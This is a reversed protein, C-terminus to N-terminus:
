KKERKAVKRAERRRVAITEEQKRNCPHHLAFASALKSPRQQAAAWVRLANGLHM